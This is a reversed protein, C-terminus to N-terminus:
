ARKRDQLFLNAFRCRSYGPSDDLGFNLGEGFQTKFLLFRINKKLPVETDISAIEQSIKGIETSVGTAIVLAKGAGTPLVVLGPGGGQDWHRDLADLAARQYERLRLM